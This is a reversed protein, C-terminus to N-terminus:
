VFGDSKGRVKGEIDARFDPLKSVDVAEGGQAAAKCEENYETYDASSDDKRAPDRTFKRIKKDETGVIIDGWTDHTVTWVTKPLQITQKCEGDAWLKVTCDDGGTVIEGTELCDVAFIFGGHGKYDLMHTGDM